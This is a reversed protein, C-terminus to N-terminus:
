LTDEIHVFHSDTYDFFYCFFYEPYFKKTMSFIRKITQYNLKAM